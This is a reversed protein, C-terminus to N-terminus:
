KGKRRMEVQQQYDLDNEDVIEDKMDKMVDDKAKLSEIGAMFIEKNGHGKARVAEVEDIEGNTLTIGVGYKRKLLKM